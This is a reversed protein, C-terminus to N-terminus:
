IGPSASVTQIYSLYAHLMFQFDEDAHTQKFYPLLQALHPHLHEDWNPSQQADWDQMAQERTKSFGQTHTVVFGLCMALLGRYANVQLLPSLGSEALAAIIADIGQTVKLATPSGQESALVVVLGPHRLLAEYLHRAIVELRTRWPQSPDPMDIQSLVLDALGDLLDRKDKVHNYLSMAEVNLAAGLKRMSLGALGQEDLIKLAAQLILQRTLPPGNKRM